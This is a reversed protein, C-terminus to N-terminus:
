VYICVCGGTHKFETYMFAILYVCVHSCQTCIRINKCLWAYVRQTYVYYINHSRYTSRSLGTHWIPEVRVRFYKSLYNRVKTRLM